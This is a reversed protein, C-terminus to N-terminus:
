QRTTAPAILKKIFKNIASIIMFWKCYHKKNMIVVSEKKDTEKIIMNKNNKLEM